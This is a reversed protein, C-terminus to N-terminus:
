RNEDNEEKEIKLIYKEGNKYFFAPYDDNDVTRLLNFQEDISKFVDIESDKSTRKEYFSEEGFQPSPSKYKEYNEIFELCMDITLFAQKERLEKNLELGNLNLTKRLYIDGDDVGDSAEFMSFVIESKGEIVQWFLPAWGKGKPLNSEHIVINHKNQKLYEKEIIKHYGLIFLIDYSDNLDKHDYFLFSNELKTNLTKAYDVFWQNLSTLIGIKHM